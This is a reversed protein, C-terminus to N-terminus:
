ATDETAQKACGTLPLRKAGRVRYADEHGGHKHVRGVTRVLGSCESLANNRTVYHTM